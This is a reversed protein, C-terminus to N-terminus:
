QDEKNQQKLQEKQRHCIGQMACQGCGCSCTSKGQRKARIYSFVIAGVILAIVGLIVINGWNASLWALM